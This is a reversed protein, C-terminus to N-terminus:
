PCKAYRIANLSIIFIAIHIYEVPLGFIHFIPYGFHIAYDIIKGLTLWLMVNFIRFGSALWAAYFVCMASINVCYNYVYSSVYLKGDWEATPQIFSHGTWSFFDKRQGMGSINDRGITYLVMVMVSFILLGYILIIRGQTM